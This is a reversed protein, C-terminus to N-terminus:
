GEPGRIHSPPAGARALLLDLAPVHSGRWYVQGCGACQWFEDYWRRTLPELLHLVDAKSRGELRGGCRMCRTFPRVLRHLRFRRVVEAAQEAPDQSRPCYGHVVVSRHLLMRDRTLLIRGEQSSALALPGDDPDAPLSADLGLLRLLGALRGLNVDCLFAPEAPPDPRLRPCPPHLDSFPPFAAIRSGPAVRAAFDSPMGDLLLADIEPHPIGASEVVHKVTPTGGARVRVEGNAPNGRLFWRLDAYARVM